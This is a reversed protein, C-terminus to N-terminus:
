RSGGSRGQSTPAVSQARRRKSTLPVQRRMRTLRAFYQMAAPVSRVTPIIESCESLRLARNVAHSAVLAWPLEAHQCAADIALLASLGHAAFFGVGSLDVLLANGVEVLRTVDATVRAINTADVDGSITVVTALHRVHVQIEVGGCDATVDGYRSAVDGESTTPEHAVSMILENRQFQSPRGARFDKDLLCKLDTTVTTLGLNFARLCQTTGLKSM